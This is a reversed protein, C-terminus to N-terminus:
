VAGGAFHTDSPLTLGLGDKMQLSNGGEETGRQGSNEYEARALSICRYLLVIRVTWSESNRSQVAAAKGRCPGDLAIQM